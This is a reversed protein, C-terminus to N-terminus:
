PAYLDALKGVIEEASKFNGADIILMLQKKLKNAEEESGWHKNVVPRDFIDEKDPNERNWQSEKLCEKILAKLESKKMNNEM